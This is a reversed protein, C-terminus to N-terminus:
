RASYDLWPDFWPDGVKKPASLFLTEGDDQMGASWPRRPLPSPRSSLRPAAESGAVVESGGSRDRRLGLIRMLM